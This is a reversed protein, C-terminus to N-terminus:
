LCLCPVGGVTVHAVVYVACRPLHRLSRRFLLFDEGHLCMESVLM